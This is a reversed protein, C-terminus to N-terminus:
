RPQCQIMFFFLRSGEGPIRARKALFQAWELLVVNRLSRKQLLCVIYFMAEGATEQLKLLASEAIGCLLITPFCFPPTEAMKPYSHQANRVVETLHAQFVWERTWQEWLSNPLTLTEREICQPVDPMQVVVLFGLNRRSDIANKWVCLFYCITMWEHGNAHTVFRFMLM